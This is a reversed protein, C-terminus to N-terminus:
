EPKLGLEKILKSWRARGDRLLAEVEKPSGTRPEFGAAELRERTAPQMLVKTAEGNLRAIIARPTSAPALLSLSQYVDIESLGSEALTPVNPLAASRVGSTVALIRVKGARAHPIVVSSGLVAASVQGGTLDVIAPGGGKYPVHIIDIGGLKKILEGSLHQLTGTGPTAFTLTGPKARALAVFEKFGAAPVSAHVALVYPQSSMLIVPAFSKVPDFSVKRYLSPLVTIGDGASVLTYGDASARAVADFGITGGAGPRNDVVVQQGLAAGLREAVVRSVVDNGGGPAFPVVLRIPRSPYSQPYASGLVLAALIAATIMPILKTLM